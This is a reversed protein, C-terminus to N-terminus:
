NYTKIQNIHHEMHEVYDNMLFRLEVILTNDLRIEYALAEQTVSKFVRIIQRNISYWPQVLEEIDM